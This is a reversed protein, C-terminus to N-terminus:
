EPQELLVQLADHAANMEEQRRPLAGPSVAWAMSARDRQYADVLALLYARDDECLNTGREADDSEALLRAREKAAELMTKM